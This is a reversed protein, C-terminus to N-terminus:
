IMFMTPVCYTAPKIGLHPLWPYQPGVAYKSFFFIRLKFRYQEPTLQTHTHLYIFIYIYINEMYSHKNLYRMLTIHNHPLCLVYYHM